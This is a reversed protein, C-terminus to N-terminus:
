YKTLIFIERKFADRLTKHPYIKYITKISQLSFLEILKLSYQENEESFLKSYTKLLKDEMQKEKDRYFDSDLTMDKGIVTNFVKELLIKVRIKRIKKKM